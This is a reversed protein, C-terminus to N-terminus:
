SVIQCQSIQRATARYTSGNAGALKVHWGRRPGAKGILQYVPGNDAFKVHDGAKVNPALKRKANERCRNRWDRAWQGSKTMVAPDIPALQDLMDVIRLPARAANPGCTETMDKYSFEGTKKSRKFLCVMGYFIPDNGPATFRCVGYWQGPKTASDVIEWNAGNENTGNLERRLIQDPTMGPFDAFSTWGMNAGWMHFFSRVPPRLMGLGSLAPKAGITQLKGVALRALWHNACHIPFNPTPCQGSM